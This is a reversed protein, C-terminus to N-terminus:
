KAKFNYGVIEGNGGFVVQSDYMKTFDIKSSVDVVNYDTAAGTSTSSGAWTYTGKSSIVTIAIYGRSKLVASVIDQPYVVNGDFQNYERYEIIESRALDADSMASSVSTTLSFVSSLMFLVVCCMLVEFATLFSSSIVDDM